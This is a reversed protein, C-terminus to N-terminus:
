VRRIFEEQGPPLTIAKRDVAEKGESPSDRGGM